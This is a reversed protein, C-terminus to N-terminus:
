SNVEGPNRSYVIPILVLTIIVSFVLGFMVAYALPAWIDDAFILPIMGIVTTTTTLLIPRLRSGAADAVVDDIPKLPNKKRETNMMDILLISNNVVIGSLAIFGMLSPFSLSNGTIALGFMIGILSYPLITLVYRTHRFSNFQLVLIAVMLGVGVFLAVFMEIFAQNSEESEGGGTDVTITPSLDLESEIQALLEAQIARADAGEVVDGTLTIVRDGDTHRISSNSERLTINAVTGIPVVEGTPTPILLQELDDISADATAGPDPQAPGDLQLKVVVDIDDTLTTLSTADTGFVAGRLYSSVSQTTLGFRSGEQRDFELVFETGNQNGTTKVNTSGDIENLLIASQAAAITLEELDNGKFSVTIASGTPPGGDPQTVTVDGSTIENAAIQLETAIESSTRVRDERLSILFSGFRDGQGGAGFQSGSGVTVEFLDIEPVGYLVEEFQRVTLDTTEKVTGVPLEVEAVLFPSDGSEFFIVRVFGLVPLFLAVILLIRITWLFRKQSGKSELIKYLRAKYWNELDKAYEVQKQEFKTASRRKLFTASLLPLVVLAVFLSAFLVFILTFPISAIFQGTVGSVIFLGAFMSVTTLTGSILPSKFEQVAQIAAEKKDINPDEKMKRNIGEVMVIGSDVLIGIGLILSFLSLFNITNDSYYLGIFGLLFSLPIASGAILAERWGIAIVLVIMVLIVTQLGSGSLQVLDDRIDDGSNLVIRTTTDSLIEGPETLENLKDEVASAIRTIDGGSQKYVSASFANISPEGDVSLRSISGSPEVDDTVVAVDQITVPVGSLTTIPISAVDSTTEIDGDFAVNYQIQESTIQGVPFSTNAARLANTVDNLTLSFQTLTTQDAIVSVERKPAGSIEVRSVGPVSEIENEVQTALFSVAFPTLETAVSFSLIPQDVFDVETVVPEEANDPLEVKIRDIENKLEDISEDIDANAEFEVTVSSVGESSVSSIEKVNDLAGSLGREIENTVLKEIDSAPAGPLVTTVIGVPVQVAPSSERPISLVSYVGLGCLALILLYSFRSNKIFFEWM